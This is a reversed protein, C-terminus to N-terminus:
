FRAALNAKFGHQQADNAIQGTYFLGFTASPSLGFDLGTEMIAADRAIPVAAVTFANGDSFAQKSLPTADGFAHRWGLTGHAALKMGSDLTLDTSARLGLTIFTADTTQSSAHLAAAGRQEIFGDTHLSVYALSAFPEFSAVPIDIRYGLESFSQFLGADYKGELSDAFGPFAISRSTDFANGAERYEIGLFPCNRKFRSRLHCAPV